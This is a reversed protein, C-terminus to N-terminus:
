EWRVRWAISLKVPGRVKGIAFAGKKKVRRANDPLLM